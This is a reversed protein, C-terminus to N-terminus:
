RLRCLGCRWAASGIGAHILPFSGKRILKSSGMRAFAIALSAAAVYPEATDDQAFFAPLCRVSGNVKGVM